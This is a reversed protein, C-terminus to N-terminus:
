TDDADDEGDGVDHDWPDFALAHPSLKAICDPIAWVAFTVAMRLWLSFPEPWFLTPREFHSRVLSLEFFLDQLETLRILGAHVDQMSYCVELTVSYLAWNCLYLAVFIAFITSVWSEFCELLSAVM